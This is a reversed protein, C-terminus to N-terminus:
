SGEYCVQEKLDDLALEIREDDSNKMILLLSVPDIMGNRATIKPDFIWEEVLVVDPEITWDPDLGERASYEKKNLAYVEYVPDNLMTRIALASEGSLIADEPLDEKLIFKVNKVPNKMVNQAKEFLGWGKVVPRVMVSVGKHETVLFGFAVLERVARSVAMENLALAKAIEKQSCQDLLNGLIYATLILQAIGSLTGRTEKRVSDTPGLAMGLGPIYIQNDPVIFPMREEILVKRQYSSIKPLVIIPPHDCYHRLAELQKKAQPLKFSGQAYEVLIYECGELLLIEYVRGDILYPPLKISFPRIQCEIGLTYKLYKEIM